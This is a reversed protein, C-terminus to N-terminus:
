CDTSSYGIKDKLLLDNKFNVESHPIFLYTHIPTMTPNLKTIFMTFIKNLVLKNVSNNEINQLSFYYISGNILYISHALHRSLSIAKYTTLM